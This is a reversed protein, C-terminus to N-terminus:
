ESAREGRSAVRIERESSLMYFNAEIIIRHRM